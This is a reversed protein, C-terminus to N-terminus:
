IIYTAQIIFGEFATSGSVISVGRDSSKFKVLATTKPYGNSDLCIASAYIDYTPEFGSPLYGVAISSNQPIPYDNSRILISVVNGCKKVDNINITKTNDIPTFPSTDTSIVKYLYRVNKFMQSVKAFLSTLSGGTTLTSVSTWSSADADTTDSSTFSVISDSANNSLVGDDTFNVIRYKAKDSESLATWEAQTGVFTPLLTNDWSGDGKLYKDKDAILPAPVLGQTGGAQSTAGIFPAAGSSSAAEHALQYYYKSNDTGQGSRYPDGHDDVADGTAYSQAQRAYDKATNVQDECDSLYDPDLKNGDISGDIIEASVHGDNGVSFGITDSDDFEYQTIFETLSISQTSGDALTLVLSQTTSDYTFNTVVKELATNITTSTGNVFGITFIGTTYDFSISNICGNVTTQNAKSNIAANAESDIRLIATDMQNLNAASLPTATSALNEWSVGSTYQRTYNSM